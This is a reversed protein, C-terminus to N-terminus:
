ASLPAAAAVVVRRIPETTLGLPALSYAINGATGGYTREARDLVFSLSLVHIKELNIADAFRGPYDMIIDYAISGSVFVKM